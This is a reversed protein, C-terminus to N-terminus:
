GVYEGVKLSSAQPAGALWVPLQSFHDILVQAGCSQLQGASQAGYTVGVSDVGANRAMNLDFSSDGIMLAQAPAVDCVALIQQLMLPDPKSATEDACRTVDFFRQWGRRELLMDLGRRSKGTAVALAYGQQRFDHLADMVGEFLPSPQRELVGYHEAYSQRFLEYGRDLDYQPYLSAVAEPLGLGIIGRIREDDLEPLECADAAVRICEVIRGVSNVLTGDWDFILLRYDSM